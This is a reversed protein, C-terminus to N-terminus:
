RQLDECEPGGRYRKLLEDSRILGDKPEYSMFMRYIQRIETESLSPRMARYKGVDLKDYFHPDSPNSHDNGM